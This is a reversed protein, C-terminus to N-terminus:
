GKCHGGHFNKHNGGILQFEGNGKPEKQHHYIGPYGPSGGKLVGMNAGRRTGGQKIVETAMNFVRM